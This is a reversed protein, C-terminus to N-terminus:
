PTWQFAVQLETYAATGLSNLANEQAKALEPSEANLFRPDPSNLHFFDYWSIDPTESQEFHARLAKSHNKMYISNLWIFQMQHDFGGQAIMRDHNADGTKEQNNAKIVMTKKYLLHNALNGDDVYNYTVAM